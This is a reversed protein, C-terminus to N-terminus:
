CDIWSLYILCISFSIGFQYSPTSCRGLASHLKKNLFPSLKALLQTFSSDVFYALGAPFTSHYLLRFPYHQFRLFFFKAFVDAIAFDRSQWLFFLKVFRKPCCIVIDSGFLRVNQRVTHPSCVGPLFFMKQENWSASSFLFMICKKNNLGFM